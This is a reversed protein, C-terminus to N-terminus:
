NDDNIMLDKKTRCANRERLGTHSDAGPPRRLRLHSSLVTVQETLVSLESQDQLLSKTTVHVARLEASLRTAQFVFVSSSSAPRHAFPLLHTDLHTHESQSVLTHKGVAPPGLLM